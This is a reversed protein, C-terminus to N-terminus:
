EFCVKKIIEDIRRNMESSNLENAAKDSNLKYKNIDEVTLNNLSDAMHKPNFNENIIGLDFRRVLNSMDISPGIAIALRAQIFEFFKNPLCHKLNFTVPPVLFVGIDYSSLFPIINEFEVPPIIKVNERKLSEKLLFDYYDKDSCVLMLDLTFRKDVYDMMEFM